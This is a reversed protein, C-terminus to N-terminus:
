LLKIGKMEKAKEYLKRDGTIFNCKLKKALEIYAADYLSIKFRKSLTIGELFEEIGLTFIEFDLNWLSSFAESAADASLKTKTTLVNAAEYFFLEPVAITEEGSVHRDRYYIASDGGAEDGFIWKLIVSADLVIM